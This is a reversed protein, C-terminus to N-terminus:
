IYANVTKIDFMTFGVIASHSKSSKLIKAKTMIYPGVVGVVRQNSVPKDRKDEHLCYLSAVMKCTARPIHYTPTLCCKLKGM